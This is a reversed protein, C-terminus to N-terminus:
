SQGPVLPKLKELMAPLEDHLAACVIRADVEDYRHILRDRMGAMESWPLGPHAAIFAPSLRKVAEGMVMLQHQFASFTLEDAELRDPTLDGAFDIALRMARVIDILAGEDRQM